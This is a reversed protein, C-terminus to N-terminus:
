MWPSRIVEFYLPLGDRERASGPFGNFDDDAAPSAYASEQAHGLRIGARM